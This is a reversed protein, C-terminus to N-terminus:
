IDYIYNTKPAPWVHSVTNFKFAFIVLLQANQSLALSYVNIPFVFIHNRDSGILTGFLLGKAFTHGRAAKEM